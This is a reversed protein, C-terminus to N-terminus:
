TGTYNYIHTCRICLRMYDGVVNYFVITFRSYTRVHKTAKSLVNCTIINLFPVNRTCIDLKKFIIVSVYHVFVNNYVLKCPNHVSRSSVCGSYTRCERNHCANCDM